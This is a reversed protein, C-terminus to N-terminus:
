RGSRRTSRARSTSSRTRSRSRGSTTSCRATASRRSRPPRSGSGARWRARSGSWWGRFAGDHLQRPRRDGGRACGRRHTVRGRVARAAGDDGPRRDGGGATADSRPFEPASHRLFLVGQLRDGQVLGVAAYSGAPAAGASEHRQAFELARRLEPLSGRSIPGGSLKRALGDALTVSASRFAAPAPDGPTRAAALRVLSRGQGGAGPEFVAAEECDLERCLFSPLVYLMHRPRECRSVM